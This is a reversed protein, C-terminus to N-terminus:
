GGKENENTEDPVIIVPVIVRRAPSAVIAYAPQDPQVTVDELTVEVVFTGRRNAQTRGIVTAGRGDRSDSLSLTLREGRLWGRGTVTLVDGRL